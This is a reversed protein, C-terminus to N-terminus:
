AHDAPTLKGRHTPDDGGQGTADRDQDANDEDGMGPVVQGGSQGPRVFAPKLAGLVPEIPKAGIEVGTSGLDCGQLALGVAGGGGLVGQGLGARDGRAGCGQGLGRGIRIVRNIGGASIAQASM